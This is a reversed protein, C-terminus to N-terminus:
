PNSHLHARHSRPPPSAFFGFFVAGAALGFSAAFFAAFFAAGATFFAAFFAAGAFFAAFFAAGAAFFAAFFAAGAAFFPAFFGAGAAFGFRLAAPAAALAAFFGRVTAVLFYVDRVNAIQNIKEDDRRRRRAAFGSRRV